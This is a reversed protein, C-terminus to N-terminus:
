AAWRAFPDAYRANHEQHRAVLHTLEHASIAGLRLLCEGLRPTRAAQAAVVRARQAPRLLGLRVAADGLRENALRRMELQEVELQQLYGLAVATEGFRPRRQQMALAALLAGRTLWRGFFLYEGFRLPQAPLGGAWYGDAPRPPTPRARPRAQREALHRSLVDFAQNLAKFRDGLVRAEVGLAVARDPHTQLAKRRFIAKLEIPELRALAAAARAPEVGLLTACAEVVVPSLLEDM